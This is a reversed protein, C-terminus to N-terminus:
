SIFLNVVANVVPQYLDRGQTVDIWLLLRGNYKKLIWKSTVKGDAGLYGLPTQRPAGFGGFGQISKEGVRQTGCAWGM